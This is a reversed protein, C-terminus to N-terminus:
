EKVKGKKWLANFTEPAFDPLERGIGWADLRNYLVFRPMHEATRGAKIAAYFLSPREM